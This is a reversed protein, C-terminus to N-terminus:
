RAPSPITFASMGCGAAEPTASFWTAYRAPNSTAPGIPPTGNQVRRAAETSGPVWFENLAFSALSVALGVALYPLCIRWLSVGACRIATLEQHRAHNTLAYLLALLLAVPLILVLIEPM